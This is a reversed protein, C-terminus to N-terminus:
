RLRATSVSAQSNWPRFHQLDTWTSFDSTLGGVSRRTGGGGAARGSRDLAGQFQLVWGSPRRCGRPRTRAFALAQARVGAAFANETLSGEIVEIGSATCLRTRGTPLTDVLIAGDEGLVETRVDDGFRCNRTLDVIAVAGGQLHLWAVLNDVDGVAAVYETAIPLNRATVSEVHAGTLWEALDYEHVGCDIALGGSVQPDCFAAPPPDADWQALRVFLPRGIAGADILRKAAVWPPSFRRWFGIQLVRGASRAEAAVTVSEEPDLSLPKECLVHVGARLAARVIEVHTPTPTAVVWGDVDDDAILEPLEVLDVDLENAFARATSAAPDTVSALDIGEVSSLVRAHVRGMRGVGVLALRVFDGM